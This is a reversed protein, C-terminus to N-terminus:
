EFSVEEFDEFDSKDAFRKNFAFRHANRSHVIAISINRELSYKYMPPRLNYEFPNINYIDNLFDRKSIINFINQDGMKQDFKVNDSNDLYEKMRALWTKVYQKSNKGNFLIVGTNFDGVPSSSILSMTEWDMIPMKALALSKGSFCFDDYLSRINRTVFTDSDLFIFKGNYYDHAYSIGYVKNLFADKFPFDVKLVQVEVDFFKFKRNIDSFITVNFKSDTKSLSAASILAENLYSKGYAVYAINTYDSTM